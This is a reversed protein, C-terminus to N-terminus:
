GNPQDEVVACIREDFLLTDGQADNSVSSTRVLAFPASSEIKDRDIMHMIDMMM